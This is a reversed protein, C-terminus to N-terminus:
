EPKPEDITPGDAAPGEDELWVVIDTEGNPGPFPLLDFTGVPKLLLGVENPRQPHHRVNYVAISSKKRPVPGRVQLDVLVGEKTLLHRVREADEVRGRDYIVVARNALMPSQCAGVLALILVAALRYLRQLKM